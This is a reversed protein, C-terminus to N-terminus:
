CDEWLVGDDSCQVSSESGNKFETRKAGDDFSQLWVRNDNASSSQTKFWFAVDAELVEPTKDFGYPLTEAYDILVQPDLDRYIPKLDVWNDLVGFSGNERRFALQSTYSKTGKTQNVFLYRMYAKQTFNEAKCDSKKSVTESILNVLEYETSGKKATVIEKIDCLYDDGRAEPEVSARYTLSACGTVLSFAATLAVLRKYM